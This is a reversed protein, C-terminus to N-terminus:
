SLRTPKYRENRLEELKKDTGAAMRALTQATATSIDDHIKDVEARVKEEIVHELRDALRLAVDAPLLAALQTALYPRGLSLDFRRKLSWHADTTLLDAFNVEGTDTTPTVRRVRTAGPGNGKDCETGWLHVWQKGDDAHLHAWGDSHGPSPAAMWGKPLDAEPQHDGPDPNDAAQEREVDFGSAAAIADVDADTLDWGGTGNPTAM